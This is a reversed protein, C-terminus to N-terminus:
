KKENNKDGKIERVIRIIREALLAGSAGLAASWCILSGVNMTLGTDCLIVIVMALACVLVVLFPILQWFKNM